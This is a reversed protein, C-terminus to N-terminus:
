QGLAKEVNAIISADAGFAKLLGVIAAVQSATLRTTSAGLVQGQANEVSTSIVGKNLEARTLPGVYGSAPSIGHANQYRVVAVKTLAGFYGTPAAITLDGEAILVKQLETVDQGTSGVTLNQTFNYAAAGLVEGGGISGATTAPTAAPASFTGLPAGGGGGGGGGGGASVTTGTQTYTLFTTFHKTWVVLDSGVAIKCDGGAALADGAAQSDASCTATIETFTGNLSWGVNAGAQGSFLIRVGKDFTLSATSTGAEVAMTVTTTYGTPTGPGTYSTSVSPFNLVGNWTSTGTVTTGAPIDFTATVGGSTASTTAETGVTGSVDGTTPDTSTALSFSSGEVVVSRTLETAVNGHSDTADYHITYTGATNMNPADTADTTTALDYNDIVSAGPDTFTNGLAVHMPNDGLLVLTPATTDVVGVDFTSTATNGANDFATCTVTTTGLAFASGSAPDCTVSLVGSGGDTATPNTFSVVAGDHSTAETTTATPMGVLAPATTDWYFESTKTTTNGAVDTVVLQLTYTGDASASVTTTADSASGFHVTGPGSAESWAYTSVGSGTDSATAAITATTSAYTTAPMTVDPANADIGKTVQSGSDGAFSVNGAADTITVGTLQLPATHDTDGSQVTYAGVYTLGGNSTAWSLPKGNYDAPAMQAGPEAKSPTVTFSVIDGVKFWNVNSGGETVDVAEISPALTDATFSTPTSTGSLQNGYPDEAGSVGISVSQEVHPTTPVTVTGQWTDGSYSTEAVTTTGSSFGAVVTPPVATQMPNKNFQITVAVATGGNAPSPTASASVISVPTTDVSSCSSDTCWPRYSIDGAVQAAPSLAGTNWFNQTADLTHATDLNRVMLGGLANDHFSVQSADAVNSADCWDNSFAYEDNGATNSINSFYNGSVIVSQPVTASNCTPTVEIGHAWGASAIGALKNHSVTVGSVVGQVMVGYAGHAAANAIDSFINNEVDITNMVTGANYIHVGDITSGSYNPNTITFGKITTNGAYDTVQGTLVAEAGRTGTNPNVNANPGLLSVPNNLTVNENYNGAAVNVTGGSSVANVAAQITAFANTGIAHAIRSGSAAAVLDGNSLSSWSADVPVSDTSVKDAVTWPVSAPTDFINGSELLAADLGGNNDEINIGVADSPLKFDLLHTIHNGTVTAGPTAAELGIAHAWLGEITGGTGIYNNSVTLNNTAHNVLIGYAGAGGGYTPSGVWAATSAEVVGVTNGSITVNSFSNSGSSNGFYIGKASSGASGGHALQTNGVNTITNGSVTIDSVASANSIFAIAQASGSTLSTGIDHITNNTVTLNSHDTAIIGDSATPNEINLHDVTVGDAALTVAGDIAAENSTDASTLTLAKPVSIDGAYPSSSAVIAVTGGSQVANTGDAITAFANTGFAHAIDTTTGVLDGNANSAWASDVYITNTSVKDAVKWHVNSFSNGSLLANADLGGTNDEINIGVADSPSKHDTLNEITNGSVIAGPTAGELGIGHAWLATLATITNNEIDLGGTATAHNVLIGYAGAGGSGDSNVKWGLSSSVINSITNGKITTGSFLSSGSSNGLYIGKASGDASSTHLLGSNGINSITNNEIDITAVSAASSIVDIGAASGSTLSTGVGTIVNNKFTLNSHDAAYIGYTGSPNTIGLGDVEVSDSQVTISGSLLSGPVGIIKIPHSVTVDETGAYDAAVNVTGNDAVADVGAQITAYDGSPGVTASNRTYYVTVSVSDVYVHHSSADPNTVDVAVGFSTDQVDAPTLSLGWTDSAGGYTAATATDPWMTSTDAESTSTGAPGVLVLSNDHVAGLSGAHRTVSVAVGDITADSPISSFDFGTLKAYKTTDSAPLVVTGATGTFSWSYTGSNSADNAAATPSIAGTNLTTAAFAAPASFIFFASAAFVASLAVFGISLSSKM